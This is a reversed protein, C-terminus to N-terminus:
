LMKQIQQAMGRLQNFQAQSMRGSNLLMQVQQRADGTFSSRFANFNQIINQMNGPLQNGGLQKYINNM